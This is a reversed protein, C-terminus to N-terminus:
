KFYIITIKQEEILPSNFIVKADAKVFSYEDMDNGEQRMVGEVFVALQNATALEMNVLETQESTAISQIKGISFSQNSDGVAPCVYDIDPLLSITKAYYGDENLLSSDPKYLKFSYSYDENLKAPVVIKENETAQFQIYQYAGNFSTMFAWTGTEDAVIPLAVAESCVPIEGLNIVNKTSM